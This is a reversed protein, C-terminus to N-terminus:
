TPPRTRTPRWPRRAADSGSLSIGPDVITVPFPQTAAPAAMTATLPAQERTWPCSRHACLATPTNGCTACRVAQAPATRRGAAHERRPPAWPAESVLQEAPEQYAARLSAVIRGSRGRVAPPPLARAITGYAEELLDDLWAEDLAGAHERGLTAEAAGGLVRGVPDDRGPGRGTRGTAAPLSAGALRVLAQMWAVDIVFHEDVALARLWASGLMIAREPLPADLWHAAVRLAEGAGSPVTGAITGVIGSDERWQLKWDVAGNRRRTVDVVRREHAM